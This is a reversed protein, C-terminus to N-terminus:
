QRRFYLMAKFHSPKASRILHDVNSLEDTDRDGHRKTEHQHQHAPKPKGRRFTILLICRKLLFDLLHLAPIGDMRLGADLSNVDSETSSHSVSTQRKCM